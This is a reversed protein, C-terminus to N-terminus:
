RLRRLSSHAERTLRHEAQGRALSELHERAAPTGLYELLEVARVARLLAPELEEPPELRELLKEVRRRLELTPQGKLAQELAARAVLGVEILYRSAAERVEFEESDLAEIRRRVERPDPEPVPKVEKRALDLLQGPVAALRRMAQHARRADPRGLDSWLAALEEASLRAPRGGASQGVLDWVLVTTDSGGTALTRGDPSFALSAIPGRHGRFESRVERTSLEWLLVRGSRKGQDRLSVALTRGDPSFALTEVFAAEGGNDLM